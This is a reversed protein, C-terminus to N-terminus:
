VENAAREIADPPVIGLTTLIEGLRRFSTAQVCLAETLQTQTILGRKLLFEGFPESQGTYAEIAQDLEGQGIWDHDILIDGLRRYSARQMKLAIELQDQSLLGREVLFTGLRRSEEANQKFGALRQYGRRIAFALDSRTAMCMEINLHLQQSLFERDNKSLPSEVAVLLRKVNGNGNGHRSGNRVPYISYRVALEYPLKELLEIATQYPDLSVLPLSLQASVVKTLADEHLLGMGVLIRGLRKPYPRENQAKLANELQAVTILRRELLLDGLRRRFALLEKESPFEHETKEWTILRGTFRSRAFLYFARTVSAFGIVNGWVQRPVSLVAQRWGYIRQVCYARWFFREFMFFTDIVIVTWLWGHRSVLPPYRYSDPYLWNHIQVAGVIALVVYGLVNFFGTILQKRDQLLQYKSWFGGRWGLQSWGQFAIGVIWRARQKIAPWPRNPFFERTGIYERVTADRRGFWRSFTTVTREVPFKVFISSLGLTRIHMGFDYDETMSQINFLQGKREGGMKELAERSFACGVGASPIRGSLAERVVMNKRHHEAFEDIYHGGTFSWTDQELAFVPLQVMHKRPILYNFLKLSMPHVIDESDHMVFIEFQIGNEREFHRIGHYIWNLCDAKNTPGNDPCVIRQVNDYNERVLEVARETAEDNPYTGVFIQYNAYHFTEVANELMQRIVAAENWAPIM